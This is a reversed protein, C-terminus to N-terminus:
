RLVTVYTSIYLMPFPTINCCLFPVKVNVVGQVSMWNYSAHRFHQKRLQRHRTQCVILHGTELSSYHGQSQTLGFTLRQNAGYTELGEMDQINGFIFIIYFFMVSNFLVEYSAM